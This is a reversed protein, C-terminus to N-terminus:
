FQQAIVEILIVFKSHFLEIQRSPRIQPIIEALSIAFGKRRTTPTIKSGEKSSGVDGDQRFFAGPDVCEAAICAQPGISATCTTEGANSTQPIRVTVIVSCGRLQNLAIDFCREQQQKPTPQAIPIRLIINQTRHQGQWTIPQCGGPRAAGMPEQMM